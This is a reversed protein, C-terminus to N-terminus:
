QAVVFKGNRLIYFTNAKIKKGDVKITKISKIEYNDNREALVIWCGISGSAKCDHGLGCAVSEKGEVTAASMNGTNTAASMDGTNTAASRNGTNTAASRDGTNSKKNNKWDIRDLIFNVGLQVFSHLKLEAGIKIKTTCKKSDEDNGVVDALSEVDAFRSSAPDYYNFVDLPNECFHFGSECIVANDTEYTGGEKFQFGRCQMNKDFGKYSQISKNKGM